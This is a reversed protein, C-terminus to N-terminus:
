GARLLRVAQPLSRAEPMWHDIAAGLAMLGILAALAAIRTRRWAAMVWGEAGAKYALAGGVSAIAIEVAVALLVEVGFLGFVVFGLVTGIALAVGIALALPILVLAGEDAAGAVELVSGVAEGAGQARIASFEVEAPDVVIATRPRAVSM